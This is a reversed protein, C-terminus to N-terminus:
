FPNSTLSTFYETQPAEPAIFPDTGKGPDSLTLTYNSNVNIYYGEGPEFTNISNIWGFGTIYQIFGGSENIVKVLYGADILPQLVTIANQSVECPYGM